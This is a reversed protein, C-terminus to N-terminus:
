KRMGLNIHDLLNMDNKNIQNEFIPNVIIVPISKNNKIDNVEKKSIKESSLPLLYSAKTEPERGLVDDDVALSKFSLKLGYINFNIEKFSMYDDYFVAFFPPLKRPYYIMAFMLFGFTNVFNLIIMKMQSSILNQVVTRNFLITLILFTTYLLTALIHYNM